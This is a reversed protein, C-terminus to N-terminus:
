LSPAGSTRGLCLDSLRAIENPDDVAGSALAALEDPRVFGMAAAATLLGMLAGFKFGHGSFGSMIWAREQSEIIFREQPQVTYFCTKSQDIRYRGIDKIRGRCASMLAEVEDETAARDVDPDGTLSFSHDGVKLGAGARPPVVYIGGSTGIDLVMPSRAWAPVLDAPPELYLVVQRSPQVRTRLGPLLRPAWPGAAVVVLDAGLRTGDQLVAAGRIPDVEVVPMGPAVTVGRFQLYQALDSIIQSAMLVGGTDMRYSLDLGDPSLQPYDKALVDASLHEVRQGALGLNRVSAEAWETEGSAMVLTGTPHYHSRGLESWLQDWAAYAPGVLRTYGLQQGYAYRILRNQDGSSGQPNPLEGQELVTVSCGMRRLGWATCLGMIGGGIVVAQV